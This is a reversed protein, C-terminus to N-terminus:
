GRVHQFAALTCDRNLEDWSRIHAEWVEPNGGGAEQRLRELYRRTADADMANVLHAIVLDRNM